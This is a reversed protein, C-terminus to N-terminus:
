GSIDGRLFAAGEDPDVTTIEIGTGLEFGASISIKPIIEIHWHYHGYEEKEVIPALHIFFNLDPDHLREWIANLSFSLIESMGSILSESSDEFYPQHIKPFIRIEFPERSVFPSFAIATENEFIIRKKENIEFKIMECHVCQQHNTFYRASGDLSHQIMPPIVPIAVIQLHPHYISAGASPGWNHFISIYKIKSDSAIQRYRKQLATFIFALEDPNYKSLPREHDEVVLLEHYGRGNIIGYPGVRKESISIDGPKFAPYKNEFIQLFWKSSGALHEVLIPKEHGTVRLDEFPCLARDSIIRNEKTLSLDGFRKNRGTAIVIWDGSVPDQRLQSIYKLNNNSKKSEM